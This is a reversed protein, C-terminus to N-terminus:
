GEQFHQELLTRIEDAMKLGRLACQAKIRTHLRASVDITLRKMPEAEPETPAPPTTRNTVWDDATKPAPAQPKPSFSVKKSM